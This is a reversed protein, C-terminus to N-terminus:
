RSLTIQYFFDLLMQQKNSLRVSPRKKRILQLAEEPTSVIKRDLLIAAALTASRGHGFACHIYIEGSHISIHKLIDVLSECDPVLTDLVPLSIYDRGSTVGHAPTFECAMDIVTTIQPPLEYAYPRRGLWIGPVIQVCCPERSIFRRISWLIWSVALYPFLGITAWLTRKGDRKKGFVSMGVGAYAIAVLSFSLAPWLLGWAIGGHAAALWVIATAFAFFVATYRISLRHATAKFGFGVYFGSCALVTQIERALGVATKRASTSLNQEKQIIRLAEHLSCLIETAMGGSLMADKLKRACDDRGEGCLM